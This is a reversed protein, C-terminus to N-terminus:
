KNELEKEKCFLRYRRTYDYSDRFINNAAQYLKPEYQRMIDLETEFDRGFPCGACGTRKLGYETYCKSHTINYHNEYDEKDQDSYFFIPRYNDCGQNEDFCNKYAVARVGREAKRVGYINLGYEGNKVMGHAIKKKAWLCCEDSIKFAPPNEIMFEKLYKNHKICFQSSQNANCWWYLANKCGVYDQRQEDWKCYKDLLTELPEDEWQFNHRQLRKIMNSVNKSIFPVGYEKCAILIPKVPRKRIIEIGYKDELDKLHDKTAQYELGTDFWVYDIKNDRDCKDCIDLVIDSDSGGSISCLEKEYKPDNIRSWAKVLNDGIVQNKPAEELVELLNKSGM